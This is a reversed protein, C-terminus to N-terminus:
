WGLSSPIYSPEMTLLGQLPPPFNPLRVIVKPGNVSPNPIEEVMHVGADTGLYGYLSNVFCLIWAIPHNGVGSHITDDTFVEKASRYNPYSCGLLAAM